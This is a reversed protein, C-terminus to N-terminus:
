QQQGGQAVKKLFDNTFNLYDDTQLKLDLISKRMNKQSEIVIALTHKVGPDPTMFHYEEYLEILTQHTRLLRGYLERHDMANKLDM